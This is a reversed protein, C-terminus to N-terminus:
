EIFIQTMIVDRQAEDFRCTHVSNELEIKLSCNNDIFKIINQNNSFKEGTVQQNPRHTHRKKAQKRKTENVPWMTLSETKTFPYAM